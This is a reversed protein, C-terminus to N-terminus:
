SVGQFNSGSITVSTGVPGSIPTFSDIAPVNTVTQETFSASSIASGSGTNVTIPGTGANPSAQANIETTSVVSVNNSPVGNFLVSQEGIFNNGLIVVATGAPGSSPSFSEISPLQAPQIVTFVGQSTASGAPTSVTIQASIAGNPVNTVIQGPSDFSFSAPTNGFLISTAPQLNQGSIVVQDGAKGSLPSFSSVIPLNSMTLVTFSATSFASGGPATVQIVGSTAGQPVQAVIQADSFVTLANSPSGNFTVSQTGLFGTGNITVQTGPAGSSPSFGTISVAAGSAAQIPEQRAATTKDNAM